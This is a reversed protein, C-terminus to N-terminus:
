REYSAVVERGEDDEVIVHLKAGSGDKATARDHRVYVTVGFTYFALEVTSGLHEGTHSKRGTTQQTLRRFFRVYLPMDYPSRFYCQEGLEIEKHDHTLSEDRLIGNPGVASRMDLLQIVRTKPGSTFSM